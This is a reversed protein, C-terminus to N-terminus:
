RASSEGTARHARRFSRRFLLWCVLIALAIWLIGWVETPIGTLEALMRADSQLASRDLVDSKIDFIAYLCSTLGLATLLVRNVGLSLRRASVLMAAGFALGFVISFPGRLYLATLVLVLAGILGAVRRSWRPAEQGITLIAAGWGLSGLYGSSLTLFASGGPCYCAGGQAPDLVIRDISGGTAIAVMGHSIEHLFVVFVKLPYIVPSDWLFWLAGFYLAFAGLFELRRRSRAQM